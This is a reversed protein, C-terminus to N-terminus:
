QDTGTKGLHARLYLAARELIDPDDGFKGLGLNCSSCLLGRTIGTSHCHDVHWRHGRKDGPDSRHCIACRGGQEALIREYDAITLGYQRLIRALLTRPHKARDAKVEAKKAERFEPDQEYKRRRNANYEAQQEPTRRFKHKNAAYYARMYAKREEAHERQWAAAVALKRERHEQYYRKQYDSPEDPM